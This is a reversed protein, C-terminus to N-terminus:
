YMGNSVGSTAYLETNAIYLHTLPSCRLPSFICVDVYALSNGSLDLEKLCPLIVPPEKANDPYSALDTNRIDNYRLSLIELADLSRFPVFLNPINWVPDPLGNLVVHNNEILLHKLGIIGKFADVEITILKENDHVNLTEIIKNEFTLNQLVTVQTKNLQFITLPWGPIDSNKLETICFGDCIYESNSVNKCNEYNEGSVTQIRLSKKRHWKINNFFPDNNCTAQARHRRYDSLKCAHHYCFNTYSVTECLGQLCVLSLIGFVLTLSRM